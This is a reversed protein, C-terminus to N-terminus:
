VTQSINMLLHNCKKQQDCEACTTQNVHAVVMHCTVEQLVTRSRDCNINLTLIVTFKCTYYANTGESFNISFQTLFIYNYTTKVIASGYHSYM